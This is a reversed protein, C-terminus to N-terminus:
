VHLQEPSATRLLMGLVSLIVLIDWQVLQFLSTKIHNEIIDAPWKCHTGSFYNLFHM